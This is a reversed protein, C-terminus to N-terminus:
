ESSELYKECLIEVVEGDSVRGQHQKRIVRSVGEFKEFQGETLRINAAHPSGGGPSDFDDLPEIEAPTWDAELLPELEDASFGLDMSDFLETLDGLEQGLKQLDWDSLEASRNDAIKFGRAKNEQEQGPAKFRVAAIHTWGLSKIAADLTGNGAIVVGDKVVVPKQQGFERLSSAIADVSRKDHLRVNSPDVSVSQIPITLKELDPSGAWIMEPKKEAVTM